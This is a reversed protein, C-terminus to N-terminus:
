EMVTVLSCLGVVVEDCDGKLASYPATLDGWCCKKLMCTSNAKGYLGPQKIHEHAAWARGMGGEQCVPMGGQLLCAASLPTMVVVCTMCSIVTLM